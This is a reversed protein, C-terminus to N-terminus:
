AKKIHSLIIANAVAANLSEARLNEINAPPICIRHTLFSKIDDQIGQGENGIVLHFNEPFTFQHINEGNADTGIVLTDPISSFYESLNVQYITVGTIAGMSSQIVKPSYPDVTDISCIITNIGFWNATRIITGLNGPNRIADLVLTCDRFQLNTPMQQEPIKVMAVVKNPTSLSSIKKLQNDNVEFIPINLSKNSSIWDQTAFIAMIEYQSNLLDYVLKPTEAIFAKHKLRNKKIKLANILKIQTQSILM